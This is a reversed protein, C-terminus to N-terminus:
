PSTTIQRNKMARVDCIALLRLPALTKTDWDLIALDPM